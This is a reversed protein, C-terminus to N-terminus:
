TEKVSIMEEMMRMKNREERWRKMCSRQIYGCDLPKISTTCPASRFLVSVQTPMCLAAHEDLLKKFLRDPYCLGMTSLPAKKVATYYFDIFNLPIEKTIQSYLMDFNKEKLLVDFLPDENRHKPMRQVRKYLYRINHTYYGIESLLQFMRNKLNLIELRDGSTNDKIINQYPEYVQENKYTIPSNINDYSFFDRFWFSELVSRVGEVVVPDTSDETKALLLSQVIPEINAKFISGKLINDTKILFGKNTLEKRTESVWGVPRNIRTARKGPVTRIGYILRIAEQQSKPVLFATYLTALKWDNDIDELRYKETM